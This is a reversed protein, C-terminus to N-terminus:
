RTIWKLYETIWNILQISFSAILNLNRTISKPNRTITFSKKLKIIILANDSSLIFEYSLIKNLMFCSSQLLNTMTVIIFIM